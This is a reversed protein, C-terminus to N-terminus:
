INSLMLLQTEIMQDNLAVFYMHFITIKEILFYGGFNHIFMMQLYCIIM